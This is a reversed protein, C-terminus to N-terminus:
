RGTQKKSETDKILANNAEIWARLESLTLSLWYEIPTANNRALVLCQRRLWDGSGGGGIGM